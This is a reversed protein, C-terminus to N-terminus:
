ELMEVTRPTTDDIPYVLLDEHKPPSDVIGRTRDATMEVFELGEHEFLIPTVGSVNFALYSSGPKWISVAFMEAKMRYVKDSSYIATGAKDIIQYSFVAFCDAGEEYSEYHPYVLAYGNSFQHCYDYTPAIVFNGQQNIYGYKGDIKVAALGEGFPFAEEYILPIIVEDQGNIFGWKEDMKVSYLGEACDEIYSYKPAIVYNGNVDIRGWKNTEHLKVISTQNEDWLGSISYIPEIICEGDANLWGTLGYLLSTDGTNLYLRYLGNSEEFTVGTVQGEFYSVVTGDAVRVIITYNPEAEADVLFDCGNGFTSDPNIDLIEVKKPIQTGEEYEIVEFERSRDTEAESAKSSVEEQPQSVQPEVQSSSVPEESPSTNSTDARTCGAFLIIACLIILATQKMGVEREM